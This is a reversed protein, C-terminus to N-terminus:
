PSGILVTLFATREAHVMRPCTNPQHHRTNHRADARVGVGAWESPSMQAAAAVELLRWVDVADKAALRSRYALAKLALAPVPGPVPVAMRWRTTGPM